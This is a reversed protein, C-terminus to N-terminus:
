QGVAALVGSYTHLGSGASANSSAPGFQYAGTMGLVPGASFARDLYGSEVDQAEFLARGRSRCSLYCGFGARQSEVQELARVLDARATAQDLTVLELTEGEIVPEALAIARRREDFGVVNRILRLDASAGERAPRPTLAVLVHRPERHGRLSDPLAPRLVELAPRGDLGLIWNDQARSIRMPATRALLGNTVALRAAQPPRIVLASCAESAVEDGAWVLPPGGQPESAGIGAVHTSGLPAALGALLRSGSLSLSDAFILALGPPETSESFGAGIELGARAEDGPLDTSLHAEAELGAIGLIAVAPSHEIERGGVLLGDVTGGASAPCDLGAAIAPILQRIGAEGWAATAVVVAADLSTEGLDARLRALAEAAATVPDLRTSIGLSARM